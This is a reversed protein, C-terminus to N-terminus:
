GANRPRTQIAETLLYSCHCQRVQSSPLPKSPTFRTISGLSKPVRQEDGRGDACFPWRFGSSQLLYRSSIALGANWFCDIQEVAASAGRQRIQTAVVELRM